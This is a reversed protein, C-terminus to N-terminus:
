QMILWDVLRCISLDFLSTSTLSTDLGALSKYIWCKGGTKFLKSGKIKKLQHMIQYRSNVFCCYLVELVLHHFPALCVIGCSVWCIQDQVCNTLNKRSFLLKGPEILCIKCTAPMSYSRVASALNNKVLKWSFTPM